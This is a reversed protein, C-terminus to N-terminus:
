VQPYRADAAAFAGAGAGVSSSAAHSTKWAPSSKCFRRNALLPRAGGWASHFPNMCDQHRRASANGREVCVPLRRAAEIGGERARQRRRQIARMRLQVANGIRPGDVGPFHGHAQQPDLVAVAARDRRAQRHGVV